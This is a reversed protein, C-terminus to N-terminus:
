AWVPFPQNCCFLPDFSLSLSLYLPILTSPDHSRKSLRAETTYRRCAVQNPRTPQRESPPETRWTPTGPSWISASPASCIVVVAAARAAAAAAARAKNIKSTAATFVRPLDSFFTTPATLLLALTTQPRKLNAWREQKSLQFRLLVGYIEPFVWLVGYDEMLGCFSENFVGNLRTLVWTWDQNMAGLSFGFVRRKTNASVQQYCWVVFFFKISYLWTEKFITM